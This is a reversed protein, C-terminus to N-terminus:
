VIQEVVREFVDVEGLPLNQLGQGFQRFGRLRFLQFASKQGMAVLGLPM